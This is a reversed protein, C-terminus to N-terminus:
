DGIYEFKEFFEDFDRVFKETGVISYYLVMSNGCNSNTQDTVIEYAIYTLQNKKNRYKGPIKNM